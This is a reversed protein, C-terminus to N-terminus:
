GIEKYYDLITEKLSESLLELDKGSVSLTKKKNVDYLVLFDKTEKKYYVPLSLSFTRNNVLYEVDVMDIINM